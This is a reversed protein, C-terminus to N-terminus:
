FGDSVVAGFHMSACCASTVQSPMKAELVLSCWFAAFHLFDPVSDPLQIKWAARSAIAGLTFRRVTVGRM